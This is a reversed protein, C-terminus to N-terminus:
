RAPQLALFMQTERDSFARVGHRAYFPRAQPSPADAIAALPPSPLAALRSLADALLAAGLGQRRHRKDVCLRTLRAAAIEPYRSPRPGREGLLDPLRLTLGSLAYFGRPAPASPLTLVFLAILGKGAARPGLSRFYKDLAPSGSRFAARDDGPSLPAIAM